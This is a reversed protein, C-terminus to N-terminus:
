EGVGKCLEDLTIGFYKAIKKLNKVSLSGIEKRYELNKLSTYPVGSDRAMESMTAGRERLLEMLREYM